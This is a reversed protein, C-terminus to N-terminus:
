VQGPLSVPREDLAKALTIPGRAIAKWHDADLEGLMSAGILGALLWIFVVIGVAFKM